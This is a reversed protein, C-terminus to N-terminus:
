SCITASEWTDHIKQRSLLFWKNWILYAFHIVETLLTHFAAYNQFHVCIYRVNENVDTTVFLSNPLKVECLCRVIILTIYKSM